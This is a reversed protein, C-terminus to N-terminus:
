HNSNNVGSPTSFATLGAAPDITSESAFIIGDLQNYNIPGRNGGGFYGRTSSNTTATITYRAQTLGAAPNIGTESAFELGDIEVSGRGDGAIRRRDEGRGPLPRQGLWFKRFAM